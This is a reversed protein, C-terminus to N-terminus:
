VLRINLNSEARNGRENLRRAAPSSVTKVTFCTEVGFLEEFYCARRKASDLDLRFDSDSNSTGLQLQIRNRSMNRCWIGNFLCLRSRDLGDSIRLIATLHRVKFQVRAPLAAFGAHSQQPTTKRHYRVVNALITREERAFGPLVGNVILKYGHKHHKRHGIHHGIDHLLGAYELLQGDEDDLGHLHRTQCFIQRALSAVKQSHKEPYCCRRAMNIVAQRRFDGLPAQPLNPLKNTSPSGQQIAITGMAVPKIGRVDVM